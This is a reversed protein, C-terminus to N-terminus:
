VRMLFNEIREQETVAGAGQEVDSALVFIQARFETQQRHKLGPRAIQTKMGVDMADHGGAAERGIAQAPHTGFDGVIEQGLADQRHAPACPELLGELLVMGLEEDLDGALDPRHSPEGVYLGHATALRGEFVEGSVDVAGGETGLADEAVIALEDGEAVAVAVAPADARHSQGRLTEEM